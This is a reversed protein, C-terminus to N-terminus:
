RNAHTPLGAAPLGAMQWVVWACEAYASGVSVVLLCAGLLVGRAVIM